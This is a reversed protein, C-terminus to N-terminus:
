TPGSRDSTSFSYVWDRGDPAFGAIPLAFALDRPVLGSVRADFRGPQQPAVRLEAGFRTGSTNESELPIVLATGECRLEGQMPSWGTGLIEQNRELVDSRATGSASLCGDPGFRIAEGQLEVRGGSQRIWLAAQELHVLDLDLNFDRAALSGGAGVSLDGAGRGHEGRWDVTYQLRGALLAAPKLKLAADGYRKGGAELGTLRGDLVTGEARSWSLGHAEVGAFKLAASLQAFVALGILVGVLLLALLVLRSM